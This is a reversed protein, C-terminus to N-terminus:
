RVRAGSRVMMKITSRASMTGVPSQVRRRYQFDNRASLRAHIARCEVKCKFM